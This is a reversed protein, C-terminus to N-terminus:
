NPFRPAVPDVSPAWPRRGTAQGKLDTWGQTRIRSPALAERLGRVERHGQVEPFGEEGRGGGAWAQAESGKEQVSASYLRTKWWQDPRWM